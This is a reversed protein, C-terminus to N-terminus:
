NFSQELHWAVVAPFDQMRQERRLSVPQWCCSSAVLLLWTGVILVATLSHGINTMINGLLPEYINNNSLRPDAAFQYDVISYFISIYFCIRQKVMSVFHCSVSSSISCGM